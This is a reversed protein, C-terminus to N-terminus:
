KLSHPVIRRSFEPRERKSWRVVPRRRGELDEFVFLRPWVLRLYAARLYPRFGVALCARRSATNRTVIELYATRIGERALEALVNRYNFQALGRGRFAPRTFVGLIYVANEPLRIWQGLHAILCREHAVWCFSVPRGDIWTAYLRYGEDLLELARRTTYFGCEYDQM